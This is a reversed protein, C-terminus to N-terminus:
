FYSLFLYLILWILHTILMSLESALLPAFIFAFYLLGFQIPTVLMFLKCALFLAPIFAFNAL